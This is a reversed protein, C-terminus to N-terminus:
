NCGAGGSRQSWLYIVQVTFLVSGNYQQDLFPTKWAAHFAQLLPRVSSNGWLFVPDIHQVGSRPKWIINSYINSFYPSPVSSADPGPYPHAAPEQSYSLSGKPVM